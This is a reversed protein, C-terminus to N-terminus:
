PAYVFTTAISRAPPWPLLSPTSVFVNGLGCNGVAAIISDYIKRKRVAYVATNVGDAHEGLILRKLKVIIDAVALRPIKVPLVAAHM